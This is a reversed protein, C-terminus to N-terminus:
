KGLSGSVDDGLLVCGNIRANFFKVGMVVAWRDARLSKFFRLRFIWIGWLNVRDYEVGKGLNVGLLESLKMMKEHSM